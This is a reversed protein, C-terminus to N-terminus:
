EFVREQAENEIEHTEGNVVSWTNAGGDKQFATREAASPTVVGFTLKVMRFHNIEFLAEDATAYAHRPTRVASEAHNSM